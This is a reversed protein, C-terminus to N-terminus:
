FLIFYIYIVYAFILICGFLRGQWAKTEKRSFISIIFLGTIVAIPFSTSAIDFVAVQSLRIDKLVSGMSISFLPDVINSGLLNGYAINPKGRKVALVSVILEPLATGFGVIIAGIIHESVEYYEAIHASATVMDTAGIYTFIAGFIVGCFYGIIKIISKEKLPANHELKQRIETIEDKDHIGLDQELETAVFLQEERSDKDRKSTYYLYFTYAFFLSLSLIAEYRYIIGDLITVTLLGLAGVMLLGDRKVHPHFSKQVSSPIMLIIIGLFITLQCFYSGYIDGVVLAGVGNLSSVISTFIEPISTGVSVITLGIVLESVGLSEALKVAYELVVNGAALLLIVGGIFLIINFFVDDRHSDVGLINCIIIIALGIAGIKYEIYKHGIYEPEQISFKLNEGALDNDIEHPNAM